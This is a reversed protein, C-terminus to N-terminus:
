ISSSICFSSSRLAQARASAARSFSPLEVGVQFLPPRACRRAARGEVGRRALWALLLKRALMLWSIRVGIFPMRPMAVQQAAAAEARLLFVLEVLDFEGAAVQEADDVVDEVERLDFGAFELELV